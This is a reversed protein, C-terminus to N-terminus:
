PRSRDAIFRHMRDRAEVAIPMPFADFAHIGGPYLALETELGATVWRTAMFLTDDVLPDWTGVTFLAPPMGTLDAYLPSLRTDFAATSTAPWPNYHEGF